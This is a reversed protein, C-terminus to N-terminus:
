IVLFALKQFYIKILELLVHHVVHIIQLTIINIQLAYLRQVIKDLIDLYVIVSEEQVFAMKAAGTKVSKEQIQVIIM